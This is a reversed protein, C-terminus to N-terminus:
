SSKSANSTVRTTMKTTESPFNMQFQSSKVPRCNISNGVGPNVVRMILDEVFMILEQFENWRPTSRLSTLEGAHFLCYRLTDSILEHQESLAEITSCFQVIFGRLGSYENDSDLYHDVLQSYKPASYSSCSYM